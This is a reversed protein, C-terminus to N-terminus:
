LNRLKIKIDEEVCAIRHRFGAIDKELFYKAIISIDTAKVVAELNILFGNFGKVTGLAVYLKRQRVQKATPKMQHQPWM